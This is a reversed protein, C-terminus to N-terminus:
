IQCYMIMNDNSYILMIILILKKILVERLRDLESM